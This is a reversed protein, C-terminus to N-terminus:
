AGSARHPARPQAPRPPPTGRSTPTGCAQCAPAHQTPGGGIFNLAAPLGGAELAAAGAALIGQVIRGSRHAPLVVLDGACPADFVERRRGAEWRAGHLGRMGVLAGDAVALQLRPPQLYPNALYKWEFYARNVEPDPDWLHTQLELVAGTWEPGYAVIEVSM